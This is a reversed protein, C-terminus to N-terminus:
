KTIPVNRLVRQPLVGLQKSQTYCSRCVPRYSENGGVQIQEGNFIPIENEVRLNFLAKRTCYWCVTKMESTKDAIELLRQSGKFLNTQFDTLLGYAIVPIDLEDTIRALEEVQDESLFQAEDVLVCDVPNQKVHNYMEDRSFLGVQIAEVAGDLARSKVFCGDRTDLVSKFLAVEKGQEIYSERVMLLQASKGCNMTGKNYYLRAGM